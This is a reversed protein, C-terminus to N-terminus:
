LYLNLEIRSMSVAPPLRHFSLTANQSCRATGFRTGAGDPSPLYPPQRFCSKPLVSRICRGLSRRPSSLLDLGGLKLVPAGCTVVLSTTSRVSALVSVEVCLFTELEMPHHISIGSGEGVRHKQNFLPNKTLSIRM